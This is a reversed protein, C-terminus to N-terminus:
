FGRSNQDRGLVLAPRSVVHKNLDRSARWCHGCKAAVDDGVGMSLNVPYSCMRETTGGLIGELRVGIKRKEM